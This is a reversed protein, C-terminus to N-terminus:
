VTLNGCILTDGDRLMELVKALGPCDTEHRESKDDFIKQCGTQTLAERQLELNQNQM